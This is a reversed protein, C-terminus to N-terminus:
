LPKETLARLVAREDRERALAADYLSTDWYNKIEDDLLERLTDPALAEVEVQVNRGHRAAFARARSDTTKGPNEPLAYDDILEPSIAVRRWSEFLCGLYRRANREIDEGSPDFDGLYLAAYSREAGLRPELFARIDREFSESQFGRLPAIPLGLPEGFWDYLQTVLTAKEVVLMPVVPQGETRDRRYRWDALETLAANANEFSGPVIISRTHDVLAPFSDERRAAATLESLRKYVYKTNPVILESVLRYFLQRLTVDSAYGVVIQAARELVPPWGIRSM